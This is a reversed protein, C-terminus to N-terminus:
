LQIDLLLITPILRFLQLLFHLRKLLYEYIGDKHVPSLTTYNAQNTYPTLPDTGAWDTTVRARVGYQQGADLVGVRPVQGIHYWEGNGSTILCGSQLCQTGKRIEMQVPNQQTQGTTKVEAMNATTQQLSASGLTVQGPTPPSLDPTDVTLEDSYPGKGYESLIYAQFSEEIITM